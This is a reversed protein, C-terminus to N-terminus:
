ACLCPVVRGHSTSSSARLGALTAATASAFLFARITQASIVLPSRYRSGCSIAAYLSACNKQAQLTPFPLSSNICWAPQFQRIPFVWKPGHRKSRTCYTPVRNARFADHGAACSLAAVFPRVCPRGVLLFSLVLFVRALPTGDVCPVITGEIPFDLGLDKGIAVEDGSYDLGNTYLPWGYNKGRMIHNIEDGGRPGMETNWIEGNDPHGDLGQGTRHGYSWVTHRTSAESRDDPAIYFPNDEPVSGDDRVRHIKGFPTNLDHLIGYVNKGGISIFLHGTGDFALRGVAVADPM